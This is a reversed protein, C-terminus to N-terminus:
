EADRWGVSPIIGAMERRPPIDLKPLNAVLAARTRDTIIPPLRHVRNHFGGDEIVECTPAILHGLYFGDYQFELRVRHFGFGVVRGVARASGRHICRKTGPEALIERQLGRNTRCSGPIRAVARVPQSNTRDRGVGGLCTTTNILIVDRGVSEGDTRKEALFGRVRLRDLQDLHDTGEDVRLLEFVRDDPM